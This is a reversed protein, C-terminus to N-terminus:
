DIRTGRFECYNSEAQTYVQAVYVYINNEIGFYSAIDDGPLNIGYESGGIFEFERPHKSIIMFMSGKAVSFRQEQQEGDSYTPTIILDEYHFKNPSLSHEIYVLVSDGGVEELYTFDVTNDILNTDGAKSESGGGSGADPLSDITSELEDLQATYEATEASIDEGGGAEPLANIGNLLAQIKVKNDSLAM